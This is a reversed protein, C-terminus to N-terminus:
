NVAHVLRWLADRRLEGEVGTTADERLDTERERQMRSGQRWGVPSIRSM